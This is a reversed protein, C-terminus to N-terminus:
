SERRRSLHLAVGAAALEMALATGGYSVFPLPLGALPVLGVMAGVNVLSQIGWWAAIGVLVLRAFADNAARANALLWGCVGVLLALVAVTFVFGLEEAVIAFISDAIVEPLFSFKQRSHGLGVGFLGGSGVALLAQNVQYGIGQPDLEPHLLVSLRALRYPAAAILGGLAAAGATVLAVIHSWPAGAAFFMTGAIAVVVVLTGADPQRVILFAPIGLVVLFPLLGRSWSRLNVWAPRRATMWAALALILGVKMIEAPQFTVPGLRLWSLTRGHTVGIGPLFVLGLLLVGLIYVPAAVRELVSWRLRTALFALLCGPLLGALVQHRVFYGRDHFREFALPASASSLLILGVAVLLGFAVLLRRDIGAARHHRVM